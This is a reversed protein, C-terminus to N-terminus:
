QREGSFCGLARVNRAASPLQKSYLMTAHLAFEVRRRSLASAPFPLRQASAPFPLRKGRLTQRSLASAPRWLRRQTATGIEFGNGCLRSPDTRLPKTEAIAGYSRTYYSPLLAHAERLHTGTGCPARRFPDSDHLQRSSAKLCPGERRSALFGDLMVRTTYHDVEIARCQTHMRHM